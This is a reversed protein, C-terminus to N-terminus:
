QSWWEISVESQNNRPPNVCRSLQQSCPTSQKRMLGTIASSVVTPTYRITNIWVQGRPKARM